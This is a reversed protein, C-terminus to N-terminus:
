DYPQGNLVNSWVYSKEQSAIINFNRNLSYCGNNIKVIASGIQNKVQLLHKNVVGALSPKDTILTEWTVGNDYSITLDVRSDVSSTWTVNHYSNVAWNDNQLPFNITLSNNNSVSNFDFSIEQQSLKRSYFKIDDLEGQWGYENLTSYNATGFYIPSSNIGISASNDTVSGKNVADIFLSVTKGKKDRILTVLHWKNDRYQNTSGAVQLQKGGNWYAMISSQPSVNNIELNLNATPSPSNYGLSVLFMRNDTSNSKMWFSISFDNSYLNPSSSSFPDIKLYGKGNFSYAANKNGFRDCTLVPLDNVNKTVSNLSATNKFGSKDAISGAAFDFSALLGGSFDAKMDEMKLPKCYFALDDIAGDFGAKQFGFGTFLNYGLILPEINNGVTTKGRNESGILNLDIYLNLKTFTAMIVVYHWKDDSYKNIAEQNIGPSGQGNWYLYSATGDNLEFNLNADIGTKDNSLLYMRRNDNARSTKFWFSITFEKDFFSNSPNPITVYQSITSDSANTNSIKLANNLNGFRDTTFSSGKNVGCLGNTSRFSNNFPYFAILSLDRIPM